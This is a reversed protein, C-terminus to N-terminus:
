RVCLCGRKALKTGTPPVFAFLIKWFLTLFHLVYDGCSPMKEEGEDGEEGEEDEDSSNVTIAEVFQEKWSSTGVALSNNARQVLKDVTNKFEKSEKVRIQTRNVEGLKPRGLLAVKEEDSLKSIPLNSPPESGVQEARRRFSGDDVPFVFLLAFFM